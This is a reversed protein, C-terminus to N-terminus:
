AKLIHGCSCRYESVHNKEGCQPCIITDIDIAPLTNLVQHYRFTGISARVFFITFIILGPFRILGMQAPLTIILYLQVILYYSTLIIACVRSKNFIGYSLAFIGLIDIIGYANVIAGDVNSDQKLMGITWIILSIGGLVVGAIWGQNIMSLNKDATKEKRESKRKYTSIFALVVKTDIEKEPDLNFRRKLEEDLAKAKLPNNERDIRTYVDILFEPDYQSYDPIFNEEL